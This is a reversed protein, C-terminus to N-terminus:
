KALSAAFISPQDFCDQATGELGSEWIWLKRYMSARHCHKYLLYAKDRYKEIAMLFVIPCRSFPPPIACNLFNDETTRIMESIIEKKALSAKPASLGGYM